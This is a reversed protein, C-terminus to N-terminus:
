RGGVLAVTPGWRAVRRRVALAVRKEGYLAQWKLPRDSKLKREGPFYGYFGDVVAQADGPIEQSSEIM